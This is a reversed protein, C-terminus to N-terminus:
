EGRPVAALIAARAEHTVIATHAVFLALRERDRETFTRGGERHAVTLVGLLRGRYVLPEALVATMGSEQITPSAYPSTRYNNVIMAQRRRAVRGSIGEGPRLVRERMWDGVGHWAVPILVQDKDDWLRVTAAAAGVLDAARQSILSFVVRMNPEGIVAATVTHIAELQRTRETLAEALEVVRAELTGAVRIPDFYARLSL